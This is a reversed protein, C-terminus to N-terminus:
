AQDLSSLVFELHRRVQGGLAAPGAAVGVILGGPTRGIVLHGHEGHLCLQRPPGLDAEAALHAVQALLAACIGSVTEPSATVEPWAQALVSGDAGLVVAGRVGRVERAVRAVVTTLDAVM